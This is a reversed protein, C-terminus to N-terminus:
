LAFEEALVTEKDALQPLRPPLAPAAEEPSTTTISEPHIPSKGGPGSRHSTKPAHDKSGARHYKKLSGAAIVVGKTQFLAAIDDFTYGATLMADIEAKMAAVLEPKTLTKRIEALRTWERCIADAQEATVTLAAETDDIKVKDRAAKKKAAKTLLATITTGSVTLGHPTFAAAVGDPGHGNKIVRRILTRNNTVLQQATLPKPIKATDRLLTALSTKTDENILSTTQGM